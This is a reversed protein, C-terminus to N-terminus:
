NLFNLTDRVIALDRTVAVHRNKRSRPPAVDASLGGLCALAGRRAAVAVAAAGRTARTSSIRLSTGSPRWCVGCNEPGRSARSCAGAVVHRRRSAIHAM